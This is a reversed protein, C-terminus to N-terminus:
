GDLVELEDIWFVPPYCMVGGRDEQIRLSVGEHALFEGVADFDYHGGGLGSGITHYKVHVRQGAVLCSARQSPSLEAGALFPNDM